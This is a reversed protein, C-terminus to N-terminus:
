MMPLTCCNMEVTYALEVVIAVVSDWGDTLARLNVRKVLLM